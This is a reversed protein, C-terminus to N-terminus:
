RKEHGAIYTGLHRVISLFINCRQSQNVIDHFSTIWKFGVIVNALCSVHFVITM